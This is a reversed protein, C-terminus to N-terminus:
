VESIFQLFSSVLVILGRCKMTQEPPLVPEVVVAAVEVVAAVVAAEMAPTEVATVLVSLPLSPLLCCPFLVM